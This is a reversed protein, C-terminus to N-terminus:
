LKAFAGLLGGAAAQRRPRKCVDDHSRLEGDAWVGAATGGLPVEAPVGGGIGQAAGTGVRRLSSLDHGLATAFKVMSLIVPPVAPSNKARHTEISQLM